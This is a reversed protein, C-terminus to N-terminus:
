LRKIFYESIVRSLHVRDKGSVHHEYGPYVFYDLMVNSEICAQLFLLSHQWVVVPDLAGHIILFDGKLNEADKILDTAEYGDPNESPKDMYRETYMVEYYKWDMVPGGAVGAKFIEPFKLMMSVTLHGGFSWGHVGIRSTDVYSLSRLYDVGAMQDAIQPIGLQRHVVSEFERGRYASGRCDLIFSVFGQQAMYQQFFEIRDMWSNAILQVHPGGYVYVLVPYKKSPNFDTPKIIRYYLKTNDDAAMITGREVKGLKYEKVPNDSRLLEHVLEGNNHCVSIENAVTYSSCKDIFHTMSRNFIVKHTGEKGTLKTIEGHDRNLKYCHKELPSDKTAMFYVIRESKDFGLLETVEWNGKTIRELKGEKANYHYIHNFGDRNSQYYFDGPSIVSFVLPNLPEVYRENTESFLEEIFKGTRVDYSKLVMTDQGRNLHQIYLFKDDPAWSLNTLYQEADGEAQIKSLSHDAISYICVETEESKMGAMPYRIFETTAPRNKIDILPYQSVQTEDKRYFALCNSQPSWYLGKDIGFENRFVIDGNTIGNVSDHTLQIQEGKENLIWLNNNLTFGVYRTDPSLAINESNPPLVFYRDLEKKVINFIYLCHDYSFTFTNESVMEVAPFDNLVSRKHQLIVGNLQDLDLLLQRESVGIQIDFLSDGESFIVNEDAQNWQLNDLDHPMLYSLRGVEIDEITFYQNYSTLSVIVLLVGLSFFKKM